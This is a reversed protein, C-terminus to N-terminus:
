QRALLIDKIIKVQKKWLKLHEEELVDQLGERLQNLFMNLEWSGYKEFDRRITSEKLSSM